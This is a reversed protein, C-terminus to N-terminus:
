FTFGTYISDFSILSTQVYYGYLMKEGLWSALVVIRSLVTQSKFTNHLTPHSRPVVIRVEEILIHSSVSLSLRSMSINLM